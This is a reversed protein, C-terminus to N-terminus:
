RELGLRDRPLREDPPVHWYPVDEWWEIGRFEVNAFRDNVAFFEPDLYIPAYVADDVITQEFERWLRRAAATDTEVLLSDILADARPNSYGAFNPGRPAISRSHFVLEANPGVVGPGWGWGWFSGQFERNRLRDVWAVSEYPRPALDVGIQALQQQIAVLVDRRTPDAANYEVEVRLPRGGKERVGDGDADTWGAEELLRRAGAPDHPIPRVDESHERLASPIPSYAAEGAGAFLGEAIGERDIGMLLARRVRRDDVPPREVNWAIWAPRVRPAQHLEVNPSSEIRSRQDSPVKLLDGEGALLETMAQNVEPVIRMVIRNLAPRGEPADPDAVLTLQQGSQWGGFRFPGNGVPNRGFPSFRMREPPVTDLLHAPVVITELVANVTAPATRALRVAVTLSDRAEASAVAAVDNQRPSAVREDKMMELTFVVDEATVPEGDHWRVDPRLHVLLTSDDEMEWERALNPAYNSLTSDRWALTRFLLHVVQNAPYTDFTLPNLEDPERDSLFVMTGGPPAGTFTDHDGGAAVDDGGGRDDGGCGALLACTALLAPAARLRLPIRTM